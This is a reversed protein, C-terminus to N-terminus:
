DLVCARMLSRLRGGEGGGRRKSFTQLGEFPGQALSFSASVKFAAEWLPPVGQKIFIKVNLSVSKCFLEVDNGVVFHSTCINAAASCLSAALAGRLFPEM